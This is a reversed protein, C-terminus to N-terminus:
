VRVRCKVRVYGAEKFPPDLCMRSSLDAVNSESLVRSFWLFTPWAAVQYAIQRLALLMSPSKSSMRILSARAADNDVFIMVSRHLTWPKWLELAARVALAELSNIVKESDGQLKRLEDVDMIDAFFHKSGTSRDVLVAGIGAKNDEEELSADTFSLLSLRTDAAILKRPVAVKRFTMMFRLEEAITVTVAAGIDYGAARSRFSPMGVAAVKGFLQGEAFGFRDRLKAALPQPLQLDKLIEDVQAQLAIVRDPKNAIITVQAVSQSFDVEVGLMEFKKAIPKRKREKESFQWGLLTMLGEATAQSAGEAKAWDLQPYDDIVNEWLLSFLRIGIIQIARVLRNFSHV